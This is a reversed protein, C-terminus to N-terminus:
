ERRVGGPQKAADRVPYRLSWVKPVQKQMEDLATRLRAVVEPHEEQLNRTEAPDQEIDYLEPPDLTQDRNAVHLKWRGDRIATVNDFYVWIFAKQRHFDDKGSLVPWIDQGDYVRDSPLEGGALKLLTPFMDYAIAPTDIVQGPPISDPWRAIFPVRVGGEYSDRIRGRLGGTDGGRNMPGNDSTFIVLTNERLGLGDLADIVRGIQEDMHEIADDYVPRGPTRASKPLNLPPHPITHSFYLFFPRERNSEIFRIAEDTMRITVDQVKDGDLRDVIKSNRYLVTPLMDMSYPLGLYHDFGNQTPLFERRDGLHWKGIAQTAYGQDRLAEALTIEDAPLGSPGDPRLVDVIGVRFPQRGTLLAARSPSCVTHAVYYQTFRAGEAALRDIVPTKVRDSGYVGLDGYALNDAWIWVINPPPQAARLGVTVLSALLLILLKSKRM